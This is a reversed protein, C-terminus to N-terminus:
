QNVNIQLKVGGDGDHKLGEAKVKFSMVPQNDGRDIPTAKKGGVIVEIQRPAKTKWDYTKSYWRSLDVIEIVLDQGKYFRDNREIKMNNKADYQRLIDYRLNTKTDLADSCQWYLESVKLLDLRAINVRIEARMFAEFAAGQFYNAVAKKMTDKAIDKAAAVVFGTALNMGAGSLLKSKAAQLAGRAAQYDSFAKDFGSLSMYRVNAYAQAIVKPDRQALYSKAVNLADDKLGSVAGKAFDKGVYIGAEKLNDAPAYSIAQEQPDYFKPLGTAPAFLLKTGAEKLIGVLGGKAAGVGIIMLAEVSAQGLASKWISDAYKNGAEFDERSADRFEQQAQARTEALQTLRQRYVPIEEGLQKLEDVPMWYEAQYRNNKDVKTWIDHIRPSDSSAFKDWAQYATTFKEKAEDVRRQAYEKKSGAMFLDNQPGKSYDSYALWYRCYSTMHTQCSSLDDVYAVDDLAAKKRDLAVKTEPMGGLATQERDALQKYKEYADWVTASPQRGAANAKQIEDWAFQMQQQYLRLSREHAKYDKSKESDKPVADQAARATAADLATKAADVKAKADQEKTRADEFAQRADEYDKERKALEDRADEMASKAHANALEWGTYDIDVDAIKYELRTFNMEVRGDRMKTISYVGNKVTWEPDKDYYFGTIKDGSADVTGKVSTPEGTIDKRIDDPLSKRTEELKLTGHLELQFGKLTGTFTNKAETTLTVSGDANETFEVDNGRSDTWTGTLSHKPQGQACATALALLSFLAALTARRRLLM